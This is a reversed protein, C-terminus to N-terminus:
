GLRRVPQVPGGAPLGTGTLPTLAPRGVRAIMPTSEGNMVVLTTADLWAAPPGADWVQTPEPRDFVRGLDILALLRRDNDLVPVALWRGDPSVLGVPALQALMSAQTVSDIALPLGCATRSASLGTAPDLKALCETKSGAGPTAYVLGLLSGDPAPQYVGTVHGARDWTPSYDGNGPVWVDRQDIGGGTTSYGLVVATGTYAIPAGRAPAPTSRDVTLTTGTRHGVYLRDGDRWAVRRGDPSVAPPRDTSDLLRHRAGDPTVLWLSGSTARESVVLWGDGTQYATYVRGDIGTLPITRGGATRLSGWGESSSFDTLLDLRDLVSTSLATTPEGAQPSAPLPPTGDARIDGLMALGGVMLALVTVGACATILARRRRVDRAETIVQDAGSRIPPPDQVQARLATRVIEDLGTM